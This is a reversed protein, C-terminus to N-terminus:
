AVISNGTASSLLLACAGSTSVKEAEEANAMAQGDASPSAHIDSGHPTSHEPDTVATNKAM